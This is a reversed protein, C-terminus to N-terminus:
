RALGEVHIDKKCANAGQQSSRPLRQSGNEDVSVDLKIRNTALYADPSLNYVQRAALKVAQFQQHPARTSNNRLPCNVVREIGIAFFQRRIRNLNEDVSQSPSEAFGSGIHLDM